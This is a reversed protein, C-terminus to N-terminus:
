CMDSIRMSAPPCKALSRNWVLSRKRKRLSKQLVNSISTHIKPRKCSSAGFVQFVDIDMTRHMSTLPTSERQEADGEIKPECKIDKLAGSVVKELDSQIYGKNEADGLSIEACLCENTLERLEKVEQSVIVVKLETAQGNTRASPLLRYQKMLWQVSDDNLEDLGDLVCYIAGIAPESALALIVKWLAERNNSFDHARSRASEVHRRLSEQAEIQGSGKISDVIQWLSSRLMSIATNRKEEGDNCCYYVVETNSGVAEKLRQFFFRSMNTIGQDAEGVVWLMGSKANLWLQCKENRVIWECTGKVPDSPEARNDVSNAVFLQRQFKELFQPLDMEPEKGQLKAQVRAQTKSLWQHSNDSAREVEQAVSQRRSTVPTKDYATAIRVREGPIERTRYKLLLEKAFAAAAVAAFNHWRDNKHSDAYDCVGRVVLACCTDMLGAAEMEFAIVGERQAIRDRDAAHKMVKNASAITGYWVQIADPDPRHPRKQVLSFDCKDCTPGSQHRYHWQFLRDDEASPRCFDKALHKHKSFMNSVHMPLGSGHLNTDARLKQLTTLVSRPPKSLAGTPVFQGDKDIKGYDYAVVGGNRGTPQSVVVDGLRVDNSESWVGGCIGVMLVLGYEVNPFSCIMKDTTRAAETTGYVGAPLCTVVVNNKGISGFTYANGDQRIIDDVDTYTHDLMATM